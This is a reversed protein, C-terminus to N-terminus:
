YRRLRILIAKSFDYSPNFFTTLMITKPLDELSICYQDLSAHYGCFYGLSHFNDVSRGLMNFINDKYGLDINSDCIMHNSIPEVVDYESSPSPQSCTLFVHFHDLPNPLFNNCGPSSSGKHVCEYRCGELPTSVLDHLEELTNESEFCADVVSFRTLRECPEGGELEM